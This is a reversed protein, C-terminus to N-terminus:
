IQGILSELKLSQKSKMPFLSVEVINLFLPRQTFTATTTTSKLDLRSHARKQQLAVNTTMACRAQILIAAPSLLGYDVM